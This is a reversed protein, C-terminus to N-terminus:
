FQRVELFLFAAYENEQPFHIAEIDEIELLFGLFYEIVNKAPSTGIIFNIRKLKEKSIDDTLTVIDFFIERICEVIEVHEEPSFYSKLVTRNLRSYIMLIINATNTLDIPYMLKLNVIAPHEKDEKIRKLEEIIIQNLTHTINKDNETAKERLCLSGFINLIRNRDLGGDINEIQSLVLKAIVNDPFFRKILHFSDTSRDWKGTMNELGAM